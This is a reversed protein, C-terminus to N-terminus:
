IRGGGLLFFAARVAGIAIFASGLLAGFFAGRAARWLAPLEPRSPPEQPRVTM